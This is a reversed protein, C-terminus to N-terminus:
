VLTRERGDRCQVEETAPFALHFGFPSFDVSDPRGIFHRKHRSSRGVFSRLRCGFAVFSFCMQENPWRECWSNGGTVVRRRWPPPPPVAPRYVVVIISQLRWRNAVGSVYLCTARVSESVHAGVTEYHTWWAIGQTARLLAHHWWRLASRGLCAFWPWRHASETPPRGTSGVNYPRTM